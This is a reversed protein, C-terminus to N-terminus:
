HVLLSKVFMDLCVPKFFDRAICMVEYLKILQREMTATKGYYSCAPLQRRPLLNLRIGFPTTQGNHKSTNECVLQKKNNQFM